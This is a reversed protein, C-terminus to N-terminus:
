LTDNGEGGDLDDAAEGGSLLDRGAGGNLVDDEAGGGLQDQGGLGWSHDSADSGGFTDADPGGVALRQDHEATFAVSLAERATPEVTADEVDDRDSTMGQAM